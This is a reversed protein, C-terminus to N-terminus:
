CVGEDVDEHPYMRVFVGHPRRTIEPHYCDADTDGIEREVDDPISVARMTDDTAFILTYKAPETSWTPHIVADESGVEVEGHYVVESNRELQIQYHGGERRDRVFLTGLSIEDEKSSPSPLSELCGSLPVTGAIALLNRRPVLTEEM